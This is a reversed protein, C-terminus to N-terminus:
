KDHGIIGLMVLRADVEAVRALRSGAHVCRPIGPKRVRVVVGGEGRIPPPHQAGGFPILRQITPKAFRGVRGVEITGSPHLTTSSACPSYTPVCGLIARCHAGEVERVFARWVAGRCRSAGMLRTLPCVNPLMTEVGDVHGGYGEFV